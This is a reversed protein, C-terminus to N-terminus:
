SARIMQGWQWVLPDTAVVCCYTLRPTLPPFTVAAIKVRPQDRSAVPREWFTEFVCARHEWQPM